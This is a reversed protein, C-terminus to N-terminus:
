LLIGVKHNTCFLCFLHNGLLHFAFGLGCLGLRAVFRFDLLRCRFGFLLGFWFGLRLLLVLRLGFLRFRLRFFILLRFRLLLVLRLVLRFLVLVLGVLFKRWRLSIGMVLPYRMSEGDLLLLAFLQLATDLFKFGLERLVLPQLGFIEAVIDLVVRVVAKVLLLLEVFHFVRTLFDLTGFCLFHLQLCLASHVERERVFGFAIVVVLKDAGAAGLEIRCQLFVVLFSNNEVVEIM